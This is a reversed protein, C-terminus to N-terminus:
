NESILVVKYIKLNVGNRIYDKKYKAPNPNITTLCKVTRKIISILRSHNKQDHM